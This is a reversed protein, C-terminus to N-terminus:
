APNQAQRGFHELPSFDVADLFVTRTMDGTTLRQVDRMAATAMELGEILPEGNATEGMEIQPILAIDAATREEIGGVLRFIEIMEARYATQDFERTMYAITVVPDGEVEMIEVTDLELWPVDLTETIESVLADDNANLAAPVFIVGLAIVAPSFLLLLRTRM